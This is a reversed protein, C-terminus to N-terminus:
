KVLATMVWEVKELDCDLKSIVAQRTPDDLLILLRQCRSTSGPWTQCIVTERGLPVVPKRWIDVVIVFQLSGFVNPHARISCKDFYGRLDGPRQQPSGPDPTRPGVILFGRRGAPCTTCRHGRGESMRHIGLYPRVEAHTFFIPVFSSCFSSVSRLFPLPILIILFRRVLTTVLIAPRAADRLHFTPTSTNISDALM